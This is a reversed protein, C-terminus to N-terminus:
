WAKENAGTSPGLVCFLQPQGTPPLYRARPWVTWQTLQQQASTKRAEPQKYHRRHVPGM